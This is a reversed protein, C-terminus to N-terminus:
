WCGEGGEGTRNGTPTGDSGTTRGVSKIGLTGKPCWGNSYERQAGEDKITGNPTINRVPGDPLQVKPFLKSM